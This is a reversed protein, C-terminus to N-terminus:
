RTEKLAMMERYVVEPDVGHERAAWRAVERWDPCSGFRAAMEAATARLQELHTAVTGGYQQALREAERRYLTGVRTAELAAVRRRLGSM